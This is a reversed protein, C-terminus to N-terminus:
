LCLRDLACFFVQARCSGFLAKVIAHRVNGSVVKKYPNHRVLLYDCVRHLYQQVHQAICKMAGRRSQWENRFNISENIADHNLMRLFSAEPLHFLIVYQWHHFYLSSRPVTAINNFMLSGLLEM